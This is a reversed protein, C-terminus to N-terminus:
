ATRRRPPSAEALVNQREAILDEDKVEIGLERFGAMVLNRFRMEPYQLLYAEARVRVYRPLKLSTPKRTDPTDGPKVERQRLKRMAREPVLDEDEIEIGLARFGEMVVTRFTTDENAVMYAEVGERVYLPLEINSALPRRDLVAPPHAPEPAKRAM